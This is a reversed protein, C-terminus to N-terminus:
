KDQVCINRYYKKYDDFSLTIDGRGDGDVQEDNWPNQLTINTGDFKLVFYEHALIIRLNQAAVQKKGAKKGEEPGPITGTTIPRKDKLADTITSKIVADSLDKIWLTSAEKGTLVEIGEEGWGGELSNYGPDKGQVRKDWYKEKGRLIAYAKELLMVWMEKDGSGAYIPKGLNPGEKHVLFESSVTVTQANRSSFIAGDIYLTVQYNGDKDPGKILNKLLEPNSKAVAGIASMFYCDGINGQAVDNWHVETADSSGKKFVETIQNLKQETVDKYVSKDNDDGEVAPNISQNGQESAPLVEQVRAKAQQLSTALTAMTEKEKPTAGGAQKFAKNYQELLKEFKDLEAQIGKVDKITTAM